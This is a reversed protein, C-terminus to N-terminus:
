DAAEVTVFLTQGGRAILLLPNGPADLARQVEEFSAVPQRNIELIADGKRIGAASAAGTPNVEAVLMGKTDEALGLRRAFDPTLPQLNLGLKGGESDGPKGPESRNADRTNEGSLEDLTATFTQEGGDRIVTLKIEAGPATGAVKNRLVNSDEVREGNVATIVDGRKVGAKEASRFLM